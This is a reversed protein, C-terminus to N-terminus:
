MLGIKIQFIRNKFIFIKASAGQLRWGTTANNNSIVSLQTGDLEVTQKTKRSISLGRKIDIPIPIRAKFSHTEPSIKLRKGNSGKTRM